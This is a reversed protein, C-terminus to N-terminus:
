IRGNKIIAEAIILDEPGTVKINSYTGLVVAVKNGTKEVLMAEDTVDAKGFKRFAKLLLEKKFVQPTQIEWIDRRDITKKVFIKGTGQSRYGTVQKITAKVPVAAIAAACSAAQKLSASIVARNIFPRAADHVLVLSAAPSTKRLGNYVSDQRRRGGLVVSSIKKIRYKKIANAIAKVNLPNAVVIIEKVARNRSLAQLSYIILPKSGLKILPKPIRSKLRKGKGAAVVIASVM